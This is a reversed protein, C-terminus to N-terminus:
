TKFFYIGMGSGMSVMIVLFINPIQNNNNHNGFYLPIHSSLCRKIVMNHNNKNKNKSVIKNSININNIFKERNLNSNLIRKRIFHQVRNTM